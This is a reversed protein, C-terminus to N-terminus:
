ATCSGSTWQGVERGVCVGWGGNLPRWSAVLGGWLGGRVWSAVECRGAWGVGVVPWGYSSTSACSGLLRGLEGGRVWLVGGLVGVVMRSGSRRRAVRWPLVRLVARPQYQECSLQVLSM